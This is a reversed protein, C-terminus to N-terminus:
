GQVTYLSIFLTVYTEDDSSTSENGNLPNSSSSSTSEEEDDYEGIKQYNTWNTNCHIHDVDYIHDTKSGNIAKVNYTNRLSM